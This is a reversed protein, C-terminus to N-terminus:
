FCHLDLAAAFDAVPFCNGSPLTSPVHRALSPDHLAEAVFATLDDIETKELGLPVFGPALNTGHGNQPVAANKYEIVERISGFSAGHGFVGSDSLNYLQPVKFRYADGPEGTFGGRGRSTAEPVRGHVRARRPDLDAFGVSFFMASADADPWSSLAPGTHCDACGAEGFFLLAGRLAKTDMARQDGRLWRQFPARSALVTREYAAISKAAGLAEPTVGSGAPIAGSAGGPFAAAYLARYAPDTQLVSDADFSLRHVLTGALAQTEIGSLAFRNVRLSPPGAEDLAGDLGANPGGARNGFAGDWLMVDQYAANLVTPSAVPQIDPKAPSGDPATADMGAALLRGEGHQGFGSGGDAIGQPIGSKFGAAVHHCSACGYSERRDPSPTATGIATEHFLLRGLAVKAPTLPNGPDQPIAALDTGDPLVFAGVGRGNSRSELLELLEEGYRQRAGNSELLESAGALPDTDLDVADQAVSRLPLGMALLPLLAILFRHRDIM